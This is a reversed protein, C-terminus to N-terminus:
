IAIGLSNTDIIFMRRSGQIIQPIGGEDYSVEM